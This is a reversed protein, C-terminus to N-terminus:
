RKKLKHIKATNYFWALASGTSYLRKYKQKSFKSKIKRLAKQLKRERAAAPDTTVRKFGEANLLAM